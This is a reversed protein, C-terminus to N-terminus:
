GAKCMIRREPKAVRRENLVALRRYYDPCRNMDGCELYAKVPCCECFERLECDFCKYAFSPKFSDVYGGLTGWGERLRGSLISYASFPFELCPKLEGYPNIALGKKGAGCQFLRGKVWQKKEIEKDDHVPMETLAEADVADSFLINDVRFREEPSLRLALNDKSGNSKPTLVTAWEPIAELDETFRKLDEIEDLNAKTINIKLAIKIKRKRLLRIAEMVRDYSGTVRTFWDFRKKKLSHFSVELSVLQLEKLRDAVKPTILTANTFLHIFLGRRRAYDILPFIDKRTLPEGGTLTVHPCGACALQDFASKVQGVSLEKKDPEPVVYCHRCRLNCRHTIEFLVDSSFVTADRKKALRKGYNETYNLQRIM